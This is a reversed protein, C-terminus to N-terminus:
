GNMQMKLLWMQTLIQTILEDCKGNFFICLMNQGIIEVPAGVAIRKSNEETKWGYLCM